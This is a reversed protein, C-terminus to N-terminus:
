RPSPIPPAGAGAGGPMALNSPPQLPRAPEKKQMPSSGGSLFWYSGVVVAVVLVIVVVAVAPSIERKLPSAM